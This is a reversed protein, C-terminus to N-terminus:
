SRERSLPQFRATVHVPQDSFLRCETAAPPPFTQASLVTDGEQSFVEVLGADGIVLLSLTDARAPVRVLSGRRFDPHFDVEGSFQRDFRLERSTVDFSLLSRHQEDSFLELGFCGTNSFQWEVSCAFAAADGIVVTQGSGVTGAYTPNATSASGPSPLVPSQVLHYQDGHGLLSLERPVSMAGRWPSTPTQAAYCWNGMWGVLIRRGDPANSFTAGAYFDQGHDLRRWYRDGDPVFQRGDFVGTWYGMFSDIPTTDPLLRNFSTLLVWRSEGSGGVPSEFLDPCEWVCDEPCPAEFISALSWTRLDPSRYVLVQHDDAEVAVMVWASDEGAVHRFVKPDRFSRSNRSLVPNDAYPVWTFGLDHSVALSQAQEGSSYASTYVAVLPPKDGVQLGSTNDHDVVVCGSFVQQREDCPIAVPLEKWALLDRSVAHGWSMNGWDSGFPNYQYFMHYWGDAFVLGNPDNMWNRAPTFHFSPRDPM